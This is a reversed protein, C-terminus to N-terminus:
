YAGIYLPLIFSGLLFLVPSVTISLILGKKGIDNCGNKICIISLFVVVVLLCLSFAALFYPLPIILLIWAFIIARYITRKFGIINFEENM